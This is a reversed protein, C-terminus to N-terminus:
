NEQFKSFFLLIYRRQWKQLLESWNKSFTTKLIVFLKNSSSKQYIAYFWFLFTIFKEKKKLYSPCFIYKTFYCIEAKKTQVM